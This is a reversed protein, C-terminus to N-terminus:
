TPQNNRGPLSKNSCNPESNRRCKPFCFSSIWTISCGGVQFPMFDHLLKHPLKAAASRSVYQIQNAVNVVHRIRDLCRSECVHIICFHPPFAWCLVPSEQSSRPKSLSISSNMEPFRFRNCNSQCHRRKSSFHSSIYMLAM